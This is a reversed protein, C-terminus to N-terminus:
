SSAGTLTYNVRLAQAAVLDQVSGFAGESWLLGTTGGKTSNSILGSGKIHATGSMTFVASATGTITKAAPTGPSWAQRNAEDYATYETWGGHSGPTDSASFATFGTNDVLLFYWPTRQTSGTFYVAENDNIGSDTVSNPAIMGPMDHWSAVVLRRGSKLPASLIDAVYAGRWSLGERRAMGMLHNLFDVGKSRRMRHRM